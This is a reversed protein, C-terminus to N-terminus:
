IREVVIMGFIGFLRDAFGTMRDFAILRQAVSRPIHTNLRLGGTLVYLWKHFPERKVIRLGPFERAFRSESDRFVSTPLRTNAAAVRGTGVLRWDDVDSIWPEFHVWRWFTQGAPTFWPEVMAIRGGSRLVHQAGRLFGSVDPLHHVVDFAVLADLSASEFQQDLKCADVVRDIGPAAVCESTVAHPAVERFFGGGSGIELLRPYANQPIEALIKRYNELYIEELFANRRIRDAHDRVEEDPAGTDRVHSPPIRM